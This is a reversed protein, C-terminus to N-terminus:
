LTTECLLLTYTWCLEQISNACRDPGPWDVSMVKAITKIVAENM